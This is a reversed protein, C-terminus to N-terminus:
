FATLHTQKKPMANKIEASILKVAEIAAHINTAIM